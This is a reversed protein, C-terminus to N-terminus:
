NLKTLKKYFGDGYNLWVLFRVEFVSRCDFHSLVIVLIGFNYTGFLVLNVFVVVAYVTCWYVFLYVYYM